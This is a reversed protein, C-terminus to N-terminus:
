EETFADVIAKTIIKAEIEEVYRAKALTEMFEDLDMEELRKKLLESSLFYKIEL